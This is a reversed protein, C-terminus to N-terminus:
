IAKVDKIALGAMAAFERAGRESKAFVTLTKGDKLTVLYQKDM